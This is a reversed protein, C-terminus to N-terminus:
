AAALTRFADLWAEAMLAHGALSPHVGDACWYDVSARTLADDFISQYPVWAAGHDDAVQRAAAQYDAFAPSWAEDIASGGTVAFPEGIILGVGPLAERTRAVLARYDREYLEVTGEYGSSLTHWFDNVGILISLVEPALDLCDAQWREDLQFVKHGSVGRNYCRWGAEPRRSLLEAAALAPYGGGLARTDNPEPRERDRGVDTVSDGQFLIVRPGPSPQTAGVGARVAGLAQESSSGTLAVGAATLGLFRRRDIPGQM